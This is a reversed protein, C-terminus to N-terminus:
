KKIAAIFAEPDIGSAKAREYFVSKPDSGGLMRAMEYAQKFQPNQMCYQQIMASPNSSSQLMQYLPKMQSVLQNFQSNEVTPNDGTIPATGQTSNILGLIPNM